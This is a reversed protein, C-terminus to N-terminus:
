CLEQNGKEELNWSSMGALLDIKEQVTLKELVDEVDFIAVEKPIYSITM